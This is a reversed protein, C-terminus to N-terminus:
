SKFKIRENLITKISDTSIDKAFIIGKKDILFNNPITNINYLSVMSSALGHTDTVQLWDIKKEKALKEWDSKNEDLAITLIELKNKPFIKRIDALAPYDKDCIDCWSAQFTLLLYKDKFTALSITDNKNSILSFDPAPNGIATRQAREVIASLKKYFRDNKAEGEILSLYPKIKEKNNNDVLLYDQILVLSAISTPHEKIFIEVETKLLQELDNIKLNNSPREEVLNCRGQILTKHKTKFDTLLNNIENGKVTILEPCNVNGEIQITDGNKAWATIWASKEEMYILIPIVSDSSSIYEFKGDIACITDIKIENSTTVLYLTNSILNSIDGAIIFANKNKCSTFIFVFLM